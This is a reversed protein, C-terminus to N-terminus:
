SAAALNAQRRGPRGAPEDSRIGRWVREPIVKERAVRAAEAGKVKQEIWDHVDLPHVLAADHACTAPDCDDVEAAMELVAARLDALVAPDGFTRIWERAPM